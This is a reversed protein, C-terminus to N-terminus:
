AEVLLEHVRESSVLEHNLFLDLNSMLRGMMEAMEPVPEQQVAAYSPGGEEVAQGFRVMAPFVGQTRYIELIDDVIRRWQDADPLLEMVPPEHAILTRVRDGHRAVLDLGITAGGSSGFVDAPESTMEALLLAADEAHRDITVAEDPDDLKSRSHGRPDYAV